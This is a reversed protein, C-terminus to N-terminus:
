SGAYGSTTLSKIAARVNPVSLVRVTCCESVVVIGADILVLIEMVATKLRAIVNDVIVIANLHLSTM